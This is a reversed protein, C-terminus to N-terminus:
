QSGAFNAPLERWGIVDLEGDELLRGMEQAPKKYIKEGMIASKYTMECASFHFEKPNFERDKYSFSIGNIIYTKGKVKFVCGVCLNSRTKRQSEILNSSSMQM